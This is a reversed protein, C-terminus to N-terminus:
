PDTAEAAVGLGLETVTRAARGLDRRGADPTEQERRKRDADARRKQEDTADARRRDEREKAKAADAERAKGEKVLKEDTIKFSDIFRRADDGNPAEAGHVMLTYVRTDALVIRVIYVGTPCGIEIERAPFGDVSMSKDSHPKAEPFNQFMHTIMGDIEDRDSKENKAARDKTGPIDKYIVLYQQGALPLLAGEAREGPELIM